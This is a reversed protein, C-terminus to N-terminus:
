DDDQRDIGEPQDGATQQTGRREQGQIEPPSAQLSERVQVAKATALAGGQHPNPHKIFCNEPDSPREGIWPPKEEM